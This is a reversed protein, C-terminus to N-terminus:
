KGNRYKYDFDEAPTNKTSCGNAWMPVSLLLAGDVFVNPGVWDLELWQWPGLVKYEEKEKRSQAQSYWTHYTQCGKNDTKKKLYAMSASAGM